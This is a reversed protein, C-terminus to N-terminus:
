NGISQSFAKFQARQIDAFLKSKILTANLEGDEFETLFVYDSKDNCIIFKNKFEIDMHKIHCQFAEADTQICFYDSYDGWTTLIVDNTAHKFRENRFKHGEPTGGIHPLLSEFDGFDLCVGFDHEAMFHFAELIQDQTYLPEFREVTDEQIKLFPAMQRLKIATKRLNRQKSDLSATLAKLSLAHLGSADRKVLKREILNEVARYVSSKSLGTRNVLAWTTEAPSKTLEIYVLVEIESLGAQLLHHKFAQKLNM